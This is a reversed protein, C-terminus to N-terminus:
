FIMHDEEEAQKLVDSVRADSAISQRVMERMQKMKEENMWEDGAARRGAKEIWSDLMSLLERLKELSKNIILMDVYRSVMPRLDDLSKADLAAFIWGELQSQGVWNRTALSTNPAVGPRKKAKIARAIVGDCVDRNALSEGSLRSLGSSGEVPIWSQLQISYSFTAGNTFSILPCGSPALSISHLHVDNSVIDLVPIRSLIARREAMDWCSFYGNSTLVYVLSEQTGLQAPLSDLQLMFSVAGTTTSLVHLSCDACALVTSKVNVSMALVPAALFTTWVLRDAPVGEEVPPRGGEESWRVRDVKTARVGSSSAWENHVVLLAHKVGVIPQTLTRQLEAAALTLSDKQLRELPRLVPRRFDALLMRDRDTLPRRRGARGQEEGRGGGRDDDDYVDEEDSSISASSGESDSSSSSSSEASSEAMVRPRDKDPAVSATSPQNIKKASSPPPLAADVKDVDMVDDPLEPKEHVSNDITSCLFVPQIRRKGNKTRNEIQEKRKELLEAEAKARKEAEERERDQSEKQTNKPQTAMRSAQLDAATEIFSSNKSPSGNIGNIGNVEEGEGNEAPPTYQPPRTRYLGFCLDSMEQQRMMRGVAAEDFLVTKVSGDQSCCFLNSGKWAADMVSHKFFNYLVILPRKLGPLAWVSLSKDRSGVAFLSVKHVKGDIDEYEFCRPACRVVTVARRNGVLDRSTDWDQRMILQATPGGNNMACPAALIKGDPSWEPRLFMTSQASEEFPESITTECTWNEMSWVRVSKDQSQSALYKGIPDFSLGKVPGTHGDRSADLVVVKEPLKLANWVVVTQDMSSSALFRGDWSWEVALVEMTHGHMTHVCRYKEMNAEEKRLGITGASKIRGGYEWVSVTRDDAAAAFYKGCRSWRVANVGRTMTIRALLPSHNEVNRGHKESVMPLLSWIVILGEGGDGNGCTALKYENPAVDLSYIAGGDHTVWPTVVVK